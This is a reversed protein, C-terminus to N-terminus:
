LSAQGRARASFSPRSGRCPAQPAAAHGEGGLPRQLLAAIADSLGFAQVLQQAGLPRIGRGEVGVPLAADASDFVVPLPAAAAAGSVARARKQGALPPPQLMPPLLDALLGTLASGPVGMAAHLLATRTTGSTPPPPPRSPISAAAGGLSPRRAPGLAGSLASAIASPQLSHPPLPSAAAAAAANSAAAAAAAAAAAPLPAGIACLRAENRSNLVLLVNPAAPAPPPAHAGPVFCAAFPFAAARLLSPPLSFGLAATEGAEERLPQADIPLGRQLCHLAVPASSGRAADFVVAYADVPASSGGSGGGGSAVGAIISFRTSNNTFGVREFALPALLMSTSYAWAVTCSLLDWVVVGQGQAAGVLFPSLGAFGLSEVVPPAASSRLLPFPLTRKLANSRPTWLTVHQQYALALLSADGSFAGATVPADRWYGVSHCIWSAPPPPAPAAPQSSAVVHASTPAAAAVGVAGGGGGAAKAARRAKRNLRADAAAAAAEGAAGGSASSGAVAAGGSGSGGVGAEGGGGESGIGAESARMWIKFSRDVSGTM